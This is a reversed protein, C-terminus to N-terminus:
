LESPAYAKISLAHIDTAMADGMAQYVLRHRAVTGLGEFRASVITLDFHGGGSRAGAHGVHLHSQDEIEVSEPALADELRRRMMEIQNRKDPIGSM